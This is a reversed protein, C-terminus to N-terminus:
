LLGTPPGRAGSVIAEPTPSADPSAARVPEARRAILPDPVILPAALPYPLQTHVHQAHHPHDAAELSPHGDTAPEHDDDHEAHDQAHDDDVDAGWAHRHEHDGGDHHHSFLAARPAVACALYLWLMLPARQRRWQTNLTPGM